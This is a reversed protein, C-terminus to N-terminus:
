FEVDVVVPCHDSHKVNDWIEANLLRSKLSETVFHYDIRWGLNKNRADGRYSWWSFLNSEQKFERLSDVFGHKIFLDIWAREEPLFGSTNKLRVPNHIDIEKHCINFDGSVIINKGASIYEKVFQLYDALFQMKFAQRADGSSGSPFYTSFLSIDGFDLRLFRGETDYKDIGMEYIVNNPKEKTLVGVGSYGKKEASKWYCHYGLQEFLHNEIQEPQAKTEQICIIDVENSVSSLWDIFGNKIAARIGNLNYSVIRKKM